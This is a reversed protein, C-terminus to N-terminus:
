QTFTEAALSIIARKEILKHYTSSKHDEIDSHFIYKMKCEQCIWIAKLDDPHMNKKSADFNSLQIIINTFHNAIKVAKTMNTLM